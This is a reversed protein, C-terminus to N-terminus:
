NHVQELTLDPGYVSTDYEEPVLTEGDDDSTWVLEVPEDLATGMMDTDLTVTLVGAREDVVYSGTQVLPARLDTSSISISASGNSLLVLSTTTGSLIVDLPSVFIVTDNVSDSSEEDPTPTAVDDPTDEEEFTEASAGIQVTQGAPYLTIEPNVLTGDEVTFDLVEEEDLDETTATDSDGFVLEGTLTISISGDENEVWEGVRAVPTTEGDMVMVASQAFGDEGLYVFVGAVFGDGVDVPGTTYLGPITFGDAVSVEPEGSSDSGDDVVSPLVDDTKTVLLGGESYASVAVALLQEGDDLIEFSIPVEPDYDEGDISQFTITLTGDGADEWFGLELSADTTTADEYSSYTEMSGDDYLAINIVRTIGGTADILEGSTYVGAYGSEDGEEAAVPTVTAEPEETEEAVPEEEAEAAFDTPEEDLLILTMGNAGWDPADPLRLGRRTVLGPFDIVSDSAEGNVTEIHLTFSDEETSEWTGGYLISDDNDAYTSIAQLSGDDFLSITVTEGSTSPVSQWTGVLTPDVQQAPAALLHTPSILLLLVVVLGTWRAIPALATRRYTRNM